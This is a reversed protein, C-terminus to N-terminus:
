DTPMFSDEMWSGDLAEPEHAQNADSPISPLPRAHQDLQRAALLSSVDATSANSDGDHQALRSHQGSSTTASSGQPLQSHRSTSLSTDDPLSTATPPRSARTAAADAAHQAASSSQSSALGLAQLARHYADTISARAPSVLDALHNFLSQLSRQPATDPNDEDARSLPSTNPQTTSIGLLWDTLADPAYDAVFAYLGVGAGCSAERPPTGSCTILDFVLRNLEKVSAGKAAMAKDTAAANGGGSSGHVPPSASSSRMAAAATVPVSRRYARAYAQRLSPSWGLTDRATRQAASASSATAAFHAAYSPHHHALDFTGLKVHTLALHPKVERALALMASRLAHAQVCRTAHFPAHLSPLLWEQLCVIRGRHQRLLPLLMQILCAPRVLGIELARSLDEPDVMELPDVPMSAASTPGIIVGALHLMHGGYSAPAPLSLFSGFHEIQAYVGEGDDDLLLPRIDARGDNEILAREHLTSCVCFVIFGRRELDLALTKSLPHALYNTLILVEKRAGNPTRAARRRRHRKQHRSYLYVGSGTLAITGATLAYKNDKAWTIAAEFTSVPPPPPPPPLQASPVDGSLGAGAMVTSWISSGSSSASSTANTVLTELDTLSDQVSSFGQRASLYVRDSFDSLVAYWDGGM